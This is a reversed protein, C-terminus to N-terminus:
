EDLMVSLVWPTANICCYCSSQPSSQRCLWQIMMCSICAHNWWSASLAAHQALLVGVQVGFLQAYTASVSLPQYKAAGEAVLRQATDKNTACLSSGAYLAPWDKANYQTLTAMSGGTVELM